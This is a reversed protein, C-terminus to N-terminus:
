AAEQQVLQTYLDTQIETYILLSSSELTDAENFFGVACFQIIAQTFVESFPKHVQKQCKQNIITSDVRGVYILGKLSFKFSDCALECGM